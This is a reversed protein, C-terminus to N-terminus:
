AAVGLVVEEGTNSAIGRCLASMSAIGRCSSLNPYFARM